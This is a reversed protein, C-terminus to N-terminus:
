RAFLSAPAPLALLHEDVHELHGMVVEWVVEDPVIASRETLLTEPAKQMYATLEDYMRWFRAITDEVSDARTAQYVRENVTDDDDTLRVWTEGRAYTELRQVLRAEWFTVHALANKISWKGQVNPQELQEPTYQKLQAAIQDRRRDIEHLLKQKNM